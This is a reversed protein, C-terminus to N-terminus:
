NHESAGDAPAEAQHSTAESWNLGSLALTGLGVVTVPLWLFAHIVLTFAAALSHAVGVLKLIAIGLADFTGVNGPTSPLSIALNVVAVMLMMEPFSLRLAPFSQMVIYYTATELLWIAVSQLLCIGILQPSRISQLGDVFRSLLGRLKDRFREPLIRAAISDYGRALFAPRRAVLFLITLTGILAIALPISLGAIKKTAAITMITFMLFGLMTLGDFIRELIITAVSSTKSVEYRKKLVYARFIDGARAPVTNNVAYGMLIVPLLQFTGLSCMPSIITRWRWARLLMTLSYVVLAPLLWIYNAEKLAAFVDGWHIDRFGFYLFIVSVAAGILLKATRKGSSRSTM